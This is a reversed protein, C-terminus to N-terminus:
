RAELCGLNAKGVDDPTYCFGKIETCPMSLHYTDNITFCTYRYSPNSSDLRCELGPGCPSTKSCSDGWQGGCIGGAAMCYDKWEEAICKVESGLCQYTGSVTWGEDRGFCEEPHVSCSTGVRPDDCRSASGRELTGGTSQHIGPYVIRQTIPPDGCAMSIPRFTIFFDQRYRLSGPYPGWRLTYTDEDSRYEGITVGDYRHEEGSSDTYKWSANGANELRAQAVLEHTDHDIRALTIFEFRLPRLYNFPIKKSLTHGKVDNVVLIYAYVDASPEPDGIGSDSHESWPSGPPASQDYVVHLREGDSHLANIKISQIKAEDSLASVRYRLIPRDPVPDVCDNVIASFDNIVPYPEFPKKKQPVNVQSQKQLDKKMDPSIKTNMDNSTINRPSTTIEPWSQDIPQATDLASDREKLRKIEKINTAKLDDRGKLKEVSINVTSIPMDIAKAGASFKLKYNSGTQAKESAKLMVKRTTASPPGLKVEIDKAPLNNMMLVQGSTLKDLNKGKLMLEIEGGGAKLRPKLESVSEIVPENSPAEKMKLPAKADQLPKLASPSKVPVQVNPVGKSPYEKGDFAFGSQIIFFTLASLLVGITIKGKM